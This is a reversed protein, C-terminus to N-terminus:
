VTRISERFLIDSQAVIESANGGFARFLHGLGPSGPAAVSHQMNPSHSIGVM